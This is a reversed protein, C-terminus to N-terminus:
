SRDLTTDNGRSHPQHDDSINLTLGHHSQDTTGDLVRMDDVFGGDLACPNHVRSTAIQDVSGDGGSSGVDRSDDQKHILGQFDTASATPPAPTTSPMASPITMSISPDPIPLPKYPMMGRVQALVFRLFRAALAPSPSRQAQVGVSTAWHAYTARARRVNSSGMWAQADALIRDQGLYSVTGNFMAPLVWYALVDLDVEAAQEEVGDPPLIAQAPTTNARRAQGPLSSPVISDPEFLSVLSRLEPLTSHRGLPVYILTPWKTGTEGRVACTLQDRTLAQYAVWQEASMEM